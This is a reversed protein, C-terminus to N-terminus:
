LSFNRSSSGHNSSQRQDSWLCDTSLSKQPPDLFDAISKDSFHLHRVVPPYNGNFLYQPLQPLLVGAHIVAEKM